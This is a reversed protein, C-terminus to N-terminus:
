INMQKPNLITYGLDSFPLVGRQNALASNCSTRYSFLSSPCLQKQTKTETRLTTFLAYFSADALFTLSDFAVYSTSKFNVFYPNQIAYSIGGMSQSTVSTGSSLKGIGFGSYPSSIENQAFGLNICFLILLLLFLKYIYKM